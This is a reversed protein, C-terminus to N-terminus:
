CLDANMHIRKLCIITLHAHRLRPVDTNIGHLNLVKISSSSTRRKPLTQSKLVSALKHCCAASAQHERGPGARKWQCHEPLKRRGADCHEGDSSVGAVGLFRSSNQLPSVLM